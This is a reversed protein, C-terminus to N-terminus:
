QPLMSSQTAAVNAAVAQEQANDCQKCPSHSLADANKHQAGPCHIVQFNYESLIALWRAVQGEPERFNHLWKLSNHDTRAQFAQGYLYPRFQRIGWVLALMEKRTTCYQREPKTLTRSAYTIM